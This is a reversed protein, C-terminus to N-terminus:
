RFCLFSDRVASSTSGTLGPGLRHEGRHGAQDIPIKKLDIAIRGASLEYSM